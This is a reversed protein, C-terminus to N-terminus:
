SQSGPREWRVTKVLTKAHEKESHTNQRYHPKSVQYINEKTNCLGLVKQHRRCSIRHSLLEGSFRQLHLPVAGGIELCKCGNKECEFVSWGSNM